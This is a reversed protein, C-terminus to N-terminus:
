TRRREQEADLVVRAYNAERERESDGGQGRQLMGPSMPMGGGGMGGTTPGRVEAADLFGTKLGTARGAAAPDFGSTPRTFSTLGAGPHAGGVGGGGGAAGGAGGGAGGLGGGPAGAAAGRVAEPVAEGGKMNGFMGTLQGMMGQAAGFGQQAMQMPMQMLGTLPQMMGQAQGVMSSMQGMADTGGGIGQISQNASQTGAQMAEGAARTAGAQAVAGAAAAPGAPSAGPTALPPPVALAATLAALAAGYVVGARSNNPWMVGHYELNLEAIRPTLMGWVSPNISQCTAEDVRNAVAVPSPVMTSVAAEYAAVAANALPPKETVWGALLQLATNLSMGTQASGTAGEGQWSAMTAASNMMSMGFSMEHSALQSIWAAMNALTTATGTGATLRTYNDEPRLVPWLPDM